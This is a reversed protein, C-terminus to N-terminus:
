NTPAKYQSSIGLVSIRQVQGLVDLISSPCYSTRSSRSTHIWLTEAMNDQPKRIKSQHRQLETEESFCM